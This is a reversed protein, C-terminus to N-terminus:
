LHDHWKAKIDYAGAELSWLFRIATAAIHIAEKRVDAETVEKEPEGVWQVLAKDLEGKEEGIIAAAHFPCTPWKPHKLTARGVEAAIEQMLPDIM